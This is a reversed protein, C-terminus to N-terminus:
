KRRKGKKGGSNPKVGGAKKQGGASKGKSEKSARKTSSGPM